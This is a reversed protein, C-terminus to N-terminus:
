NGHTGQHGGVDREGGMKTGEKELRVQKKSLKREIMEQVKKYSKGLM